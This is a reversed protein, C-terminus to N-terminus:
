VTKLPKGNIRVYAEEYSIGEKEAKKQCYRRREQERKHKAQIRANVEEYSIGEKMAVKRRYYERDRKRKIELKKEDASVSQMSASPENVVQKVSVSENNIISKLKNGLVVMFNSM